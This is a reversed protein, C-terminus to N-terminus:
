GSNDTIKSEKAKEHRVTEGLAEMEVGENATEVYDQEELDIFKPIIWNKMSYVLPSSLILPPLVSVAGVVVSNDSLSGSVVLIYIITYPISVMGILLLTVTPLMLLLCVRASANRIGTRKWLFTVLFVVIYFLAFIALIFSCLGLVRFPYVILQLSLPILFFFFLTLSTNITGFPLFVLSFKLVKYLMVLVMQPCTIFYHLTEYCHIAGFKIWIYKQKCPKIFVRFIILIFVAVNSLLPIGILFPQIGPKLFQQPNFNRQLYKVLFVLFLTMNSIAIYAIMLLKSIAGSEACTSHKCWIGIQLLEYGFILINIQLMVVISSWFLTKILLFNREKLSSPLENWIYYYAAISFLQSMLIALTLNIYPITVSIPYLINSYLYWNPLFVLGDLVYGVDDSSFSTINEQM